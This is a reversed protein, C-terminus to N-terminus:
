FTCASKYVNLIHLLKVFRKPNERRLMSLRIDPPVLQADVMDLYGVSCSRIMSQFSPVKELRSTSPQDEDVSKRANKFVCTSPEGNSSITKIKTILLFLIYM